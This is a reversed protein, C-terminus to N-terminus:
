TVCFHVIPKGVKTKVLCCSKLAIFILMFDNSLLIAFYRFEVQHNPTLESFNRDNRNLESANMEILLIEMLRDLLRDFIICMQCCTTARKNTLQVM